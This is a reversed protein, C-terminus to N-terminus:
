ATEKLKLKRLTIIDDENFVHLSIEHVIEAFEKQEYKKIHIQSVLERFQEVKELMTTYQFSSMVKVGKKNPPM